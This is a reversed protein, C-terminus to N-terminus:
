APTAQRSQTNHNEKKCGGAPAAPPVGPQPWTSM